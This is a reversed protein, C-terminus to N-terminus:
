VKGSILRILLDVSSRLVILEGRTYCRCGTCTVPEDRKLEKHHTAPATTFWIYFHLTIASAIASVQHTLQWYKILMGLNVHPNRNSFHHLLSTLLPQDYNMPLQMLFSNWIFDILWTTHRNPWCPDMGHSLTMWAFSNRAIKAFANWTTAIRWTTIESRRPFIFNYLFYRHNM